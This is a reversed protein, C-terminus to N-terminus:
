NASKKAGKAAEARKEMTFKKGLNNKRNEVKNAQEGYPNNALRQSWGDGLSMLDKITQKTTRLVDVLALIRELFSPYSEWSGDKGTGPRVGSRGQQAAVACDLLRWSEGSAIETNLTRGLIKEQQHALSPMEKAEEPTPLLDALELIPRNVDEDDAEDARISGGDSASANNSQRAQLIEVRREMRMKCKKNLLRQKKNCLEDPLCKMWEQYSEWNVMANYILLAYFCWEADTLPFTEDNYPYTCKEPKKHFLIECEKAKARAEGLNSYKLGGTVAPKKSKCDHILQHDDFDEPANIPGKKDRSTPPKVKNPFTKKIKGEFRRFRAPICAMTPDRGSDDARARKHVRRPTTQSADHFVTNQAQLASPQAVGHYFDSPSGHGDLSSYGANSTAPPITQACEYSPRQWAPGQYANPSQAFQLPAPPPCFNPDPVYEVFPPLVRAPAQFGNDLSPEAPLSHGAPVNSPGAMYGPQHWCTDQPMSQGLWLQPDVMSNNTNIFVEDNNADFQNFDTSQTTQQQIRPELRRHQSRHRSQVPGANPQM